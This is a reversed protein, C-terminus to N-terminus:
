RRRRSRPLRRPPWATRHRRGASHGGLDIDADARWQDRRDNPDGAVVSERRGTVQARRAGRLCDGGADRTEFVSRRGVKVEHWRLPLRRQREEVFLPGCNPPSFPVATQSVRVTVSRGGATQGRQDGFTVDREVRCEDHEVAEPM